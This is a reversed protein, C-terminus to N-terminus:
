ITGHSISHKPNVCRTFLSLIHLLFGIQLHHSVQMVFTGKNNGEWVVASYQQQTFKPTNDNQDILNILVQTYGYLQPGTSGDAQAVVVLKMQPSTEYDISRSDRVRIVGSMTIEFAGDENGSGLSYSTRQRRGDSRVASVKFM